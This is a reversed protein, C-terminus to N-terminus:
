AVAIKDLVPALYTRFTEYDESMPFHGLGKMVQCHQAKVIKALDETMAPTASLDYEGTLLYLPCQETDIQEALGNRMDGDVFYYYLDGAFVGPGSQMYYYLTEWYDQSPALPSMIQQVSNASVEGGHMDPRHLVYQDLLQLKENAHSEAHTASQLGIGAKFYDGHRLALHLVARGGISCGMVIPDQLQMAQCVSMVAEVYMDTTLMYPTAEFGALPSSKGHGPLDFAIIRHSQLIDADRMLGRYQRGDSGATHLCVIPQGDAAGAEEVYLRQHQGWLNLHLYRGGAAEFYPADVPPQASKQQPRLSAFLKELMMGHRAFALTDGAVDLNDTEVMSTLAQYGVPPHASSYDRWADGKAIFTFHCDADVGDSLQVEAPGIHLTQKDGDTIDLGVKLSQFQMAWAITPNTAPAETLKAFM